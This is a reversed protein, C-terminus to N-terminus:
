TPVGFRPLLQEIARRQASTLRGPRRVFSRVKRLHVAPMLPADTM